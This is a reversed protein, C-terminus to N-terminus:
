AKFIPPIKRKAFDIPDFSPCITMAAIRRLM